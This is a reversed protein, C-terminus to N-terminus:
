TKMGDIDDKWDDLEVKLQDDGRSEEQAKGVRNKDHTKQIKHVPVLFTNTKENDLYVILKSLCINDTSHSANNKFRRRYFEKISKKWLMILLIVIFICIPVILWLWVTISNVGEM